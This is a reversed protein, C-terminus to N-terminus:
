RPKMAIFPRDGVEDRRGGRFIGDRSVAGSVGEVGEDAIWGYGDSAPEPRFALARVSDPWVSGIWSAMRVM